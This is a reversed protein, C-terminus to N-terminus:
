KALDEFQQENAESLVIMWAESENKNDLLAPNDLAETRIEKVKGTIPSVLETVAKEAEVEAFTDGKVLDSGVKPLSLFSITGLEEQGENTLGLRFDNGVKEIWIYKDAAKRM